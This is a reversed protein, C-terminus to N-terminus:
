WLKVIALFGDEDGGPQAQAPNKVPLKQPVLNRPKVKPDPEIAQGISGGLVLINDKLAMCYINDAGLSTSFLCGTLTSNLISFGGTGGLKFGDPTGKSEFPLGVYLREWPDVAEALARGKVFTGVVPTGTKINGTLYLTGPGGPDRVLALALVSNDKKLDRPDKAVTSKGGDAFVKALFQDDHLFHVRIGRASAEMGKGMDSGQWGWWKWDASSTLYPQQQTRSFYEHGIELRVKTTPCTTRFAGAGRTNVNPGRLGTCPKSVDGTLEVFRAGDPSYMVTFTNGGGKAYIKGDSTFGVDQVWQDGKGGIWTLTILQPKPLPEEVGAKPVPLAPVVYDVPESPDITPLKPEEFAGKVKGPDKKKTPDFTVKPDKPDTKIIPPVIPLGPDGVGPDIDKPDGKGPLPPLDIDGKVQEGDKDSPGRAPQSQGCSTLLVVSISLSVTLFTTKAISM